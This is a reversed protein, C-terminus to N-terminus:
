VDTEHDHFSTDLSPTDLPTDKDLPAIHRKRKKAPYDRTIPSTRRSTELDVGSTYTRVPSESTVEALIEVNPVESAPVGIPMSSHTETIEVSSVPDDEAGEWTVVRIQYAGKRLKRLVFQITEGNLLRYNSDTFPMRVLVVEDVRTVTVAMGNWLPADSVVESCLENDNM